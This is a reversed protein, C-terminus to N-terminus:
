IILDNRCVGDLNCNIVKDDEYELKLSFFDKSEDLLKLFIKDGQWMNLDLLKEKDIWCLEGEDCEILDGSFKTINFLFMIEDFENNLVFTVMGKLKCEVVDLGTEEKVERIACEHPSEFSEFHGGVGLWKGENLDNEKKTRHLMLYKNDKQIYCLTTIEM